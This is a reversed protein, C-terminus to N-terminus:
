DLASLFNAPHLEYIEISKNRFNEFVDALLLTSSQVYLNHYDGLNKLGLIKFLKQAHVYHEDTVDELYLKSYFAKPLLAENFREWSEMYEYPYGAKRLLFVFKNIYGNCFQYTNAFRNILDKNFDKQYNKKCDFCRFILQDDKTTMYDLRSKCDTCKDSHIKESLNDVRHSLKSSMFRFNDILKLKYTITKSNDLKKKIPVSFTSYKEKNEELCELQGDFDKALQNIIFYYDYTSGNHFAIAIKKPTKFRLNCISHAAARFKGTYHCHDRVKHYLKFANEDNKNTSFIKRCIYCVKQKEYYENEENTLLIMEKKKEYNMIKM